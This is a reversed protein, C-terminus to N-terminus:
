QLYGKSFGCPMLEDLRTRTEPADDGAFVVEMGDSAFEMMVQRCMGCPPWGAKTYIYIVKIKATKDCSLAKWIAVREACVSAGYSANEINCGAYVQGKDTILASGVACKSYPSYAEEAAQIALERLTKYHSEM